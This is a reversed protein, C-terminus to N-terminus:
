IVVRDGPVVARTLPPFDIPSELAERAMAAVDRGTAVEGAGRHGVLRDDPLNFDLREDQFDVGIRMRWRGEVTRWRSWARLTWSLGPLGAPALSTAPVDGAPPRM